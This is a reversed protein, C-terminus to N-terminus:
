HTRKTCHIKQARIQRVLISSSSSSSSIKHLTFLQTTFLKHISHFLRRSSLAETTRQAANCNLLFKNSVATSPVTPTSWLSCLWQFGESFIATSRFLWQNNKQTSHQYFRSTMVRRCRLRPARILFFYPFVLVFKDSNYSGSFAFWLPFHVSVWRWSEIKEAFVDLSLAWETELM